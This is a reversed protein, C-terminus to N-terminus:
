LEEDVKSIFNFIVRKLTSIPTEHQNFEKIQLTLVGIELGIFPHSLLKFTHIFSYKFHCTNHRIYSLRNFDDGLSSTCQTPSREAMDLLSSHTPLQFWIGETLALDSRNQM